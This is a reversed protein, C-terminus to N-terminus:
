VEPSEMPISKNGISGISDMPRSELGGGVTISVESKMKHSSKRHSLASSQEEPKRARSYEM